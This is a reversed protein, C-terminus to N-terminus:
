PAKSSHRRVRATCMVTRPWPMAMGPQPLRVL